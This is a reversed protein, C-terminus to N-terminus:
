FGKRLRKKVLANLGEAAALFLFPSMPDGQRIGRELRFEGSPSGNVLVNASATSICEKVWSIWKGPFNMNRLMELVFNWDLSDYAKKFDATFLLKSEKTSRADEIIENLVVVGDLISRGQIFASQEDGILKGVVAKLRRAMVKAIIKYVSGILSIPRLHKVGYCGEKKPILTIFSSNVGRALKGHMHFERVVRMVDGKVIDWCPRFFELNFGDPGPSKSGDCDWVAAKIEEETFEMILVERESEELRNDILFRPMEVRSALKKQFHGRFHDMIAEKVRNPEEVWEGEVELGTIGNSNRRRNIARHFVKSNVDGERLWNLKAKQALVSKRDKLQVLLQAM